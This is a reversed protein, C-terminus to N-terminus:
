PKPGAIADRNPRGVPDLPYQCLVGGGFRAQDQDVDVGAIAGRFRLVRQVLNLTACQDRRVLELRGIIDSNQVFQRRLEVMAARTRQLGGPRRMQGDRNM